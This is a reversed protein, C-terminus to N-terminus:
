RTIATSRKADNIIAKIVALCMLAMVFSFPLAGIVMATRIANLGGVMLLAAVMVGIATGWFIIHLKAKPGADGAANITNVVLVASDASTVLYTMLLIVIIVAMLWGLTSSLLFDSMVFIKAGDPASTIAGNAVGSLELWIATGGALSFWIFCMISPVIMAGLVFERISRGKSIRALFVGVFPAFAVWWAWYFISWDGQWKALKDGVETGDKPWVEILMKPLAILYDLIGYFFASIGFWTAGMILFFSLLFISLGMNINSLWKIGRGVGSIASLTSATMIVTIAFIIGLTSATGAENILWEGLGIRYMGAVFQEVGFGLAQAIGLITAVVAVIDVIHGAPGSLSRGFLPTLSSRATLPLNRRYSFFALALGVVAYCAWAGLGWHLFSWKYAMRVNDADGATTLGMIVEPNNSFHYVPEAVAWTLMGVGIGAGFMMSFWSFNSFEPPENDSALLLKGASPWLALLFCIVIFFTVVWIYWAGFEALIFANLTNLVQNAQDPLAIAWIILSAVIIKSPLTVGKSFGEYFGSDATAIPLHTIAPKASM